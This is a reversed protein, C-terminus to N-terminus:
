TLLEDMHLSCAQDQRLLYDEEAMGEEEAVVEEVVAEEM